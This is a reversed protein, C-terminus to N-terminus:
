IGIGELQKADLHSMDIFKAPDGVVLKRIAVYGDTTTEPIKGRQIVRWFDPDGGSSNMTLLRSVQDEIEEKYNPRMAGLVVHKGLLSHGAVVIQNLVSNKGLTM